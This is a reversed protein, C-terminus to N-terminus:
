FTGHLGVSGVGIWPQLNVAGDPKPPADDALYYILLAGGALLGVGGAIYAIAANRYHENAALRREETLSRCDTYCTTYWYDSRERATNAVSLETTGLVGGAIGVAFGAISGVLLGPSRGGSEAPESVVPDAAKVDDSAPTKATVNPDPVLELKISERQGEALNINRWASLFGAAKVEVRHAGPDVPMPVGVLVAAIGTGDVTVNPADPGGFVRITLEALRPRIAELEKTADAVARARSAPADAAVEERSAKLFAEHARVLQGSAAHARGLFLLHIPSHVLTEARQFLDIADAYRHEKFASMAKDALGRAAAREEDTAASAAATWTLTTAFTAAGVVLSASALARVGWGRLLAM